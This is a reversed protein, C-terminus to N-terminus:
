TSKSQYYSEIIPGVQEALEQRGEPISTWFKGGGAATARLLKLEPIQNSFLVRFFTQGPILIQEVRITSNGFQLDFTENNQVM